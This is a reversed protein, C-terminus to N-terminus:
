DLEDDLDFPAEEDSDDLEDDLGDDAPIYEILEKCQIVKVSPITYPGHKKHTGSYPEFLVLIESGNGMMVDEPLPKKHKDKVSIPFKSGLTVYKGRNTAEERDCKNVTCGAGELVKVAEKDLHAAVVDYKESYDNFKRTNDFMVKAYFKAM